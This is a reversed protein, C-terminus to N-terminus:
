PFCWDRIICGVTHRQSAWSSNGQSTRVSQWRGALYSTMLDVADSSMRVARMKAILRSHPVSDFAKAVDVTMIVVYKRQDRARAIADVVSAVATTASRHTRFGHQHEPLVFRDLYPRLMADLVKEPLLVHLLLLVLYLPRTRSRQRSM